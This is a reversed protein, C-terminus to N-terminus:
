PTSREVDPEGPLRAPQGAVAEAIERLRQQQEATLLDFLVERVCQVHAPAADVLAAMGEDTLVAFSGRGDDECPRRSVWGRQALKTVAHSLQSMTGETAAALESMRMERGPAESLHVMIEYYAMPLDSDTALQKATARRVTGMMSLFARWVRQEDDSLWRVEREGDQGVVGPYPFVEREGSNMTYM